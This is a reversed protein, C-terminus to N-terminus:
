SEGDAFQEILGLPVEILSALRVLPPHFFDVPTELV